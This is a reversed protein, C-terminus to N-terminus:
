KLSIDIYENVKKNNLRQPSLQDIIELTKTVNTLNVKDDLEMTNFAESSIIDKFIVITEQLDAKFNPLLKAQEVDTLIGQASTLAKKMALLSEQEEPSAQEFEKDDLDDLREKFKSIYDILTTTSTTEPKVNTEDTATGESLKLYEAKSIFGFEYTREVLSNVDAATFGNGKFFENSLASLKEARSSLHLNKQSSTESTTNKDSPLSSQQGDIVQGSVDNSPRTSTNTTNTPNFWSYNNIM